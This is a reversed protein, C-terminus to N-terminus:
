RVIARRYGAAEADAETCFWAEPRTVDYYPMGPLHYIWEGKRSHNGKILCNGNSAHQQSGRRAASRSTRTAKAEQDAVLSSARYEEPLQFQWQWLGRKAARAHAEAGIYESSFRQLAIAWGAEVLAEGLDAGSVRCEAVIRGYADTDRPFCSLVQAGILGELVDRAMKGCEVPGGDGSCEQRLEPADVGFLRLEVNGISFSDGDVVKAEGVIAQAYSTAPFSLIALALMFRRINSKRM